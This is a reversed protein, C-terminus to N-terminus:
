RGCPVRRGRGTSRSERGSRRHVRVQVHLIQEVRGKLLEFEKFGEFEEFGEIRAVQQFSAGGADGERTESPHPGNPHAGNPSPRTVYGTTLRGWGSVFSGPMARVTIASPASPVSSNLTPRSSSARTRIEGVSTECNM